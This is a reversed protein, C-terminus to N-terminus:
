ASPVTRDGHPLVVGALRGVGRKEPLALGMAAWLLEQSNACLALVADSWQKLRYQERHSSSLDQRRKQLTHFFSSYKKMEKGGIKIRQVLGPPPSTM